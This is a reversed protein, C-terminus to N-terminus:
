KAQYCAQGKNYVLRGDKALNWLSDRYCGVAYYKKVGDKIGYLTHDDNATWTAGISDSIAAVALIQKETAKKLM